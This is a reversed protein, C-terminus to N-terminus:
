AGMWLMSGFPPPLYTRGDFVRDIMFRPPPHVKEGPGAGVCVAEQVSHWSEPIM